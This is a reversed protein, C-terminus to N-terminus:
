EDGLERPMMGGHKPPNKIISPKKGYFYCSDKHHYKGDVRPCGCKSCVIPNGKFDKDM